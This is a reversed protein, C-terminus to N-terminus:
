AAAKAPAKPQAALGAELIENGAGLAGQLLLAVGDPGHEELAAVVRRISRTAVDARYTRGDVTVALESRGPANDPPMPMDVFPAPDLVSTVKLKRATAAIKPM